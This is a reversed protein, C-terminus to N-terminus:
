QLLSEPIPPLDTTVPLQQYNTIKWGWKELQMGVGEGQCQKAQLYICWPIILQGQHPCVRHSLILRKPQLNKLIVSIDSLTLVKGQNVASLHYLHKKVKISLTPFLLIVASSTLTCERIEQFSNEQWRWLPTINHRRRPSSFPSKQM